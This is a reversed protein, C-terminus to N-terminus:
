QETPFLFPVLIPHSKGTHYIRVHKTDDEVVRFYTEKGLKAAVIVYVDGRLLEAFRRCTDLQGGAVAISGAAIHRSKCEIVYSTDTPIHRAIIDPQGKDGLRYAVCGNQIFLSVVRKEWKYGRNKRLAM